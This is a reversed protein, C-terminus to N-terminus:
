RFLIFLFLCLRKNIEDKNIINEIVEHLTMSSYVEVNKFLILLLLVTALASGSESKSVSMSKSVSESM